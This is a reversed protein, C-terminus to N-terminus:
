LTGCHSGNASVPIQSPCWESVITIALFKEKVSEIEIILGQMIQTPLPAPTPYLFSQSYFYAIEFSRVSLGFLKGTDQRQIIQGSTGRSRTLTRSSGPSCSVASFSPARTWAERRPPGGSSPRYRAWWAESGLTQWQWVNWRLISV